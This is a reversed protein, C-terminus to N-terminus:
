PERRKTWDPCDNEAGFIYKRNPHIPCLNYSHSDCNNCKQAEVSPMVFPELNTESRLEPYLRKIREKLPDTQDIM